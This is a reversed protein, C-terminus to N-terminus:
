TLRQTAQGAAKAAAARVDNLYNSSKAIGILATRVEAGASYGLGQAAGVRVDNPFASSKVIGLLANNVDDINLSETRFRSGTPV